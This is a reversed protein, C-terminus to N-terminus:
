KQGAKKPLKEKAVPVSALSKNDPKATSTKNPVPKTPSTTAAPKTVNTTPKLQTQAKALQTQGQPTLVASLDKDRSAQLANLQLELKSIQVSYLDMITRARNRQESTVNAKEYGAPLQFSGATAMPVSKAVVANPKAVPAKNVALPVIAARTNSNVVLKTFGRKSNVVPKVPQIGKVNAAPKIMAVPTSKTVPKSSVVKRDSKSVSKTSVVPKTNVVPKTTVVPKTSVAPKTKVVPKTTVMPKMNVVPQPKVAPKTVPMPKSNVVPVLKPATKANPIPKANAVSKANPLPKAIVTPVTSVKPPTTKGVPQVKASGNAPTVVIPASKKMDTVPKKNKAANADDGFGPTAALLAMAVAVALRPIWQRKMVSQGKSIVFSRPRVQAPCCERRMRDGIFNAGGISLM